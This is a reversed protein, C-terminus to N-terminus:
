KSRGAVVGYKKLNSVHEGYTKSFVFTKDSKSFFYYYDTKVPDAAAKLAYYGPSCIAGPPLGEYKYSNYPSDVSLFDGEYEGVFWAYGVTSDCELRRLTRSHLRNHLVSSLAGMEATYYAERQIVSALTVCEDVDLGNKKALARLEDSFKADFGRLLKSVVVHESSDSYFFYTDPYLYGDYRYTRDSPKQPIYDYGYDDDLAAVFGERTGIGNSVFVDIIEDTRMGDPITIKIQRRAKSGSAAIFIEDYSMDPSFVYEGAHFETKNRLSAYINFVLPMKIIGNDNLIRSFDWAGVDSELTVARDEGSKDLALADSAASILFISTLVSAAAIGLLYFFTKRKKM